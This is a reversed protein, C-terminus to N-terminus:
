RGQLALLARAEMDDDDTEVRRKKKGRGQGRDPEAEQFGMREEEATLPPLDFGEFDPM